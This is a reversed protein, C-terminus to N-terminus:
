HFPRAPKWLWRLVRLNYSKPASVRVLSPESDPKAACLPHIPSQMCPELQGSTPRAYSEFKGVVDGSQIDWMQTMGEISNFM